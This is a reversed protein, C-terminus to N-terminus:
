KVVIKIKASFVKGKDVDQNLGNEKFEFIFSYKFTTKAPIVINKFINDNQYPVRNENVLITNGRKVSYYLNNEETYTNTVDVFNMDFSLATDSNNIIKFTKNGIWGPM